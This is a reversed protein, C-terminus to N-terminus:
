DLQKSLDTHPDRRMYAVKPKKEKKKKKSSSDIQEGKEDDDIDSDPVNSEVFITNKLYDSKKRAYDGWLEQLFAKETPRVLIHEWPDKPFIPVLEKVTKKGKKISKEQTRACLNWIENKDILFNEEKIRAM